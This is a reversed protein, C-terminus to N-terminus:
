RPTMIVKRAVILVRFLVRKVRLSNVMFEVGGGDGRAGGVGELNM